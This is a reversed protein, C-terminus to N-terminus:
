GGLGADVIPAAADSGDPAVSADPPAGADPLPTQADSPSTQADPTTSGDFSALPPPFSADAPPSCVETESSRPESGEYPPMCVRKNPHGEEVVTASWATVDGVPICKYGEDTRCDSKQDCSKMCFTRQFRPTEQTDQCEPASSGFQLFAVCVSDEPCDGPECNFQTCYGGKFTTDCIRDGSASCDSPLHCPDGIDPTCGTSLWALAATMLLFISRDM